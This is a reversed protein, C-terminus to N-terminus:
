WGGMTGIDVKKRRAAAAERLAGAVVWYISPYISVRVYRCPFQVRLDREFSWSRADKNLPLSERAYMSMVVEGGEEGVEAM